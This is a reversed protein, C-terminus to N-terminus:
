NQLCRITFKMFEENKYINKIFDRQKKYEKIKTDNELAAYNPLQIEEPNEDTSHAMHSGGVEVFSEVNKEGYGYLLGSLYHDQFVKTWFRSDPQNLERLAQDFTMEPDVHSFEDGYKEFVDQFLKINIIGYIIYTPDFNSRRQIFRYNKMKLKKSFKLWAKWNELTCDEVYQADEPHVLVELSIDELKGDYILLDTMPKEGLLTFVAGEELFFKKMFAEAKKNDEQDLNERKWSDVVRDSCSALFFQFLLFTKLLINEKM